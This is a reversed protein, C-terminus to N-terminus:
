ASMKIERELLLRLKLFPYENKEPQHMRSFAIFETYNTEFNSLLRGSKGVNRAGLLAFKADTQKYSDRRTLMRTSTM